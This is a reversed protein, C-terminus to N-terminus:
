SLVRYSFLRCYSDNRGRAHGIMFCSLFYTAMSEYGSFRHIIRSNRAMNVAKEGINEIFIVTTCLFLYVFETELFIAM